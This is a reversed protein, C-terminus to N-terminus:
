GGSTLFLILVKMNTKRLKQIPYYFEQPMKVISLMPRKDILTKVWKATTIVSSSGYRLYLCGNQVQRVGVYM